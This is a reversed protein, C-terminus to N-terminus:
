GNIVTGEVAIVGSTKAIASSAPDLIIAAHHHEVVAGDASILGKRIPTVVPAADVIAATDATPAAQGLMVVSWFVITAFLACPPFQLPVIVELAVVEAAVFGALEIARAVQVVGDGFESLQAVIASESFGDRQECSARCTIGSVGRAAGVTTTTKQLGILTALRTGALVLLVLSAVHARIFPLM